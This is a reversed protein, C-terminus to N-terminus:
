NYRTAKSQLGLIRLPNTQRLNQRPVAPIGPIPVKPLSLAMDLDPSRKSGSPTVMVPDSTRFSPGAPPRTSNCRPFVVGGRGRM